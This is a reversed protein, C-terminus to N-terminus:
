AEGWLRRLDLELEAFPEVRVTASGGHTGLVVWRGEELRYAELTRTGPDPRRSAKPRLM